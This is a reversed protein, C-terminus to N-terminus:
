ESCCHRVSVDGRRNVIYVIPGMHAMGIGADMGVDHSAIQSGGPVLRHQEGAGVLMALFDGLGRHLRILRRTREGIPMCLRELVRPPAQRDFRITENASSRRRVRFDHGFTQAAEEFSPLDIQGVIFPKIRNALLAKDGVLFQHVALKGLILFRRYQPTFRVVEEAHFNVAGPHTLQQQVGRIQDLGDLVAVFYQLQQFLGTLRRSHPM